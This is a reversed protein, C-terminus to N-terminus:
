SLFGRKEFDTYSTSPKRWLGFWYLFSKLALGKQKKKWSKLAFLGGFGVSLFVFMWFTSEMSHMFGFLSAGALGLEDLTLGVVRIPENMYKYIRHEKIQSM